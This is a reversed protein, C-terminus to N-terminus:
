KEDEIPTSVGFLFGQELNAIQNELNGLSDKVEDLSTGMAKRFYIPKEQGSKDYGVLRIDLDFRVLSSKRSM